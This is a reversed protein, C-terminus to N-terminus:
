ATSAEKFAVKVGGAASVTIEARMRQPESDMYHVEDFAQFLRVLSYGMETLAFQQGICIRPGGNFPIYQWSKPAWTDWREPKFEDADPGVIDKRRQMIIPGYAIVTGKLIGIPQFFRTLLNKLCPALFLSVESRDPGGGVPLTTDKLAARINFPVIDHLNHIYGNCSSHSVLLIYGSFRM